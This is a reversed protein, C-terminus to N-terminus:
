LKPQFLLYEMLIISIYEYIKVMNDQSEKYFVSNKSLGDQETTTSSSILINGDSSFSFVSSLASSLDQVSEFMSSVIYQFDQVLSYPTGGGGMDFYLVPREEVILGGLMPDTRDALIAIEAPPATTFLPM